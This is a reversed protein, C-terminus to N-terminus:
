GSGWPPSTGVVVQVVLADLQSAFPEGIVVNRMVVGHQLEEPSPM